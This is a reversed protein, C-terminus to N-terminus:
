KSDGTEAEGGRTREARQLGSNGREVATEAVFSTGIGDGTEVGVTGVVQGVVPEPAAEEEGLSTRRTAQKRKRKEAIQDKPQSFHRTRGRLTTKQRKLLLVLTKRGLCKLLQKWRQLKESNGRLVKEERQIQNEEGTCIILLVVLVWLRLREVVCVITRQQPLQM